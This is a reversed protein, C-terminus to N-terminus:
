ERISQNHVFKVWCRKSDCVKKRTALLLTLQSHWTLDSIGQFLFMIYNFSSAIQALIM